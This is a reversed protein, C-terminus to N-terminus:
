LGGCEPSNPEIGALRCLEALVAADDAPDITTANIRELVDAYAARDVEAQAAQGASIGQAYSIKHLFYLSFIVVIVAGATIYLKMM